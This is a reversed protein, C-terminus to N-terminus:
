GRQGPGPVTPEVHGHQGMPGHRYQRVWRGNIQIDRYGVTWDWHAWPADYPNTAEASGQAKAISPVQIGYKPTVVRSIGDYECSGIPMIHPNTTDVTEADSAVLQVALWKAPLVQWYQLPFGGMADLYRGPRAADKQYALIIPEEWGTLVRGNKVGVFYKLDNSTGGAAMGIIQEWATQKEAFRRPWTRGTLTLNTSTVFQGVSTIIDAMTLAPDQTGSTTSNYYRWLLTHYYGKCTVTLGAAGFPRDNIEAAIPPNCNSHLYRAATNAARTSDMNDGTRYVEKIGYIGQSTTDQAAATTTQASTDNDSYTLYVRNAMPELSRTLTAGPLEVTVEYVLGEWITSDYALLRTYRGLLQGLCFLAQPRQLGGIHFTLTDYWGYASISWSLRDIRELFPVFPWFPAISAFSTRNACVDVRLPTIASM